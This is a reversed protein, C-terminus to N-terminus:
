ECWKVLSSVSRWLLLQSDKPYRELTGHFSTICRIYSAKSSQGCGSVARCTTKWTNGWQLSKTMDTPPGQCRYKITGDAEETYTKWVVSQGDEGRNPQTSEGKATEATATGDPSVPRFWADKWFCFADLKVGAHMSGDCRTDLHVASEVRRSPTPFVTDCTKHARKLVQLRHGCFAFLRPCSLCRM